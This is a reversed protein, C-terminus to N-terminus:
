CDSHYFLATSHPTATMACGNYRGWPADTGCFRGFYGCLPLYQKARGNVQVSGAGATTTVTQSLSVRPPLSCEQSAGCHRMCFTQRADNIGLM